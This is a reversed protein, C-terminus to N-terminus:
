FNNYWPAYAENFGHENFGKNVDGRLLEFTKLLSTDLTINTGKNTRKFTFTHQSRYLTEETEIGEDETKKIYTFGEQLLSKIINEDLRKNEDIYDPNPTVYLKIIDKNIKGSQITINKMARWMKTGDFLEDLDEEDVNTIDWNNLPQNFQEADTFMDKMVEVNSVDWRNLPQNFQDADWFMNEMSSVNSVNLHDINQNFSTARKFMYKMTGVNNVDWNSINENFDENNSFLSGMRTVQSVDWESIEGYTELNKETFKGDCWKNVLKRLTTGNNIPRVTKSPLTLIVIM